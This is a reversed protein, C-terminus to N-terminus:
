CIPWCQQRMLPHLHAQLSVASPKSQHRRNKGHIRTLHFCSFYVATEDQDVHDFQKVVADLARQQLGQSHPADVLAGLAQALFPPHGHHIQDVNQLYPNHLPCSARATGISCQWLRTKNLSRAHPTPFTRVEPSSSRCHCFPEHNYGTTYWMIKFPEGGNFGAPHKVGRRTDVLQMGCTLLLLIMVVRAKACYDFPSFFSNGLPVRVHTRYLGLRGRIHLNYFRKQWQQLLRFTLVKM